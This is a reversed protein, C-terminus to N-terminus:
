AGLGPQPRDGGLTLRRQQRHAIHWGYPSVHNCLEDLGVVRCASIEDVDGAVLHSCPM